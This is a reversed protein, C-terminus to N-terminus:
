VYFRVDMFLSVAVTAGVWIEINRATMMKKGANM